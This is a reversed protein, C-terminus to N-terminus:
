SVACGVKQRSRMLRHIDMSTKMAMRLSTEDTEEQDRLLAGAMFQAPTTSSGSSAMLPPSVPPPSAGTEQASIGTGGFPDGVGVESNATASAPAFSSISTLFASLEVQEAGLGAGGRGGPGTVLDRPSSQSGSSQASVGMIQKYVHANVYIPISLPM